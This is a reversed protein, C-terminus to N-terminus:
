HGLLKSTTFGAVAGSFAGVVASLASVQLSKYAVAGAVAGTGAGALASYLTAKLKSDTINAIVAGSVFGAAAGIGGGFKSATGLADGKNLFLDLAGYGLAGSASGLVAGTFAGGSITIIKSVQLADSKLAPPDAPKAAAAVETKPAAKPPTAKPLVPTSKLVEVSM